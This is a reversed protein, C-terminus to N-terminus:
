AGQAFQLVRLLIVVTILAVLLSSEIVFANSEDNVFRRFLQM